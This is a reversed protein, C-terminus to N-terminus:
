NFNVFEKLGANALHVNRIKLISNKSADWTTKEDFYFHKVQERILSHAYEYPLESIESHSRRIEKSDSWRAGYSLLLEIVELDRHAIAFHLPTLGDQNEINPDAGHILMTQILSLFPKIIQNSENEYKKYNAGKAVALILPTSKRYFDTKDLDVPFKSKLSIILEGIKPKANAITFLLPTNKMFTFDTFNLGGFKLATQVVTNALDSM